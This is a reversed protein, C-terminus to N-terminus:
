LFIKRIFFSGVPKLAHIGLQLLKILSENEFYASIPNTQKIAFSFNRTRIFRVTHKSIGKRVDIFDVQSKDWEDLPQNWPLDSLQQIFEPSINIVLNKKDM